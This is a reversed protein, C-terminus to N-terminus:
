RLIQIYGEKSGKDGSGCQSEYTVTYFYTGEDMDAARWKRNGGDSEFVQKGWRDFIQLNYSSFILTVDFEPDNAL